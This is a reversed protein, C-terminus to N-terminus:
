DLARRFLLLSRAFLRVLRTMIFLPVVTIVVIVAIVVFFAIFIVVIVVLFLLVLGCNSRCIAANIKRFFVDAVFCGSCVEALVM